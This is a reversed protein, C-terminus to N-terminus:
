YCDNSVGKARAAQAISNRIGLVRVAERAALPPWTIWRHGILGLLINAPLKQSLKQKGSLLSFAWEM